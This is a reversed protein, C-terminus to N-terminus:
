GIKLKLREYIERQVKESCRDVVVPNAIAVVRGKDDYIWNNRDARNCKECQPIINGAELPKNPNMHGKQLVTITNKWNFNPEGEKSGCTACRNDYRKKLEDFSDDGNVKVRRGATFDPYPRELSELKYEGSQLEFSVIDRRTGSIIFWGKQAVLHRAQQVDTVDPYFTRIFDTLEAKKVVLTNPYNRALFVLTLADKTFMENKKLRPLVVNKDKLFKSHYDCIVKYVQVIEDEKM